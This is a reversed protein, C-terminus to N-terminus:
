AERLARFELQAIDTIGASVTAVRSFGSAALQELLPKVNRPARELRVRRGGDILAAKLEMLVAPEVGADYLLAVADAAGETPLEVLDLIREFGISFGAAPVDAGLFRGIMGDYRGGGGLSSSSAPHAIEFITGTYYGM